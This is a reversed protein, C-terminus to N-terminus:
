YEPNPRITPEVLQQGKSFHVPRVLLNDPHNEVYTLVNFSSSDYTKREGTDNFYNVWLPSGAQVYKVGDVVAFSPYHLHGSLVALVNGASIIDRFNLADAKNFLGLAGLYLVPEHFAIVSPTDIHERLETELWDLQKESFSGMKSRPTRSDMAIVHIGEITKSYYCPPERQQSPKGLLIKSFNTRRDRTGMTPIVPGGLDQIKSIFEKVHKYSQPTGTDSLDGTIITFAPNLELQKAYDIINDLKQFPDITDRLDGRKDPIHFDSFHLFNVM